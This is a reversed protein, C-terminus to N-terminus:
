NGKGNGATHWCLQCLHFRSSRLRDFLCKLEMALVKEQWRFYGALYGGATSHAIDTRCSTIHLFVGNTGALFVHNGTLYCLIRYLRDRCLLAQWIHTYIHITYIYICICMNLPRYIHCNILIYFSHQTCTKFLWVFWM